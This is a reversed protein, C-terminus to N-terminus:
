GDSPEVVGLEKELAEVPRIAREFSSSSVRDGYPPHLALAEEYSRRAQTLLHRADDDAGRAHAETAAFFQADGRLGAASHLLLHHEEEPSVEVTDRYAASSRWSVSSALGHEGAAALAMGISELAIATLYATFSSRDSGALERARLYHSAAALYDGVSYYFHDGLADQFRALDERSENAVLYDHAAPLYDARSGFPYSSFHADDAIARAEEAPIGGARLIAALAEQSTEVVPFRALDREDLPRDRVREALASGGGLLVVPASTLYAMALEALTGAGGGIAISGRVSRFIADSFQVWGLGTDVVATFLSPDSLRKERPLIAVVQGGAARVARAAEGMVGDDGAVVCTLGREAIAQGAEAALKLDAATAIDASAGLIAVQSAIDRASRASEPM